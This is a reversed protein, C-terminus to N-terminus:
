CYGVHYEGIVEKGYLGDIRQFPNVAIVIKDVATYIKEATFRRKVTELVAGNSLTDLNKIDSIGALQVATVPDLREFESQSITM